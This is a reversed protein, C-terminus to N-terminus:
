APPPGLEEFILAREVLARDAAHRLAEDWSVLGRRALHVLQEDLSAEPRATPDRLWTAPTRVLQALGRARTSLEAVLVPGAGDLRPLLMQVLLMELQRALRERLTRRLPEPAGGLTAEVAAAAEAARVSALVVRGEEALGLLLGLVEAGAPEEIAVVDVDQRAADRLASPVDPVDRGVEIQDILALAPTHLFRGAEEVCVIRCARHRNLHHVLAALTTSRGGGAPSAVLVLGNQLQPLAKLGVPLGLEGLTPVREPLVRLAIAWQGRVRFAHVRFRQGAAGYSGEFAEKSGGLGSLWEELDAAELPGHAAPVLRGDKRVMPAAGPRLHIHTAGERALEVLIPDLDM